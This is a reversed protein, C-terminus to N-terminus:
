KKTSNYGGPMKTQPDTITSKSIIEKSTIANYPTYDSFGYKNKTSIENDLRREIAQEIRKKRRNERQRKRFEKM